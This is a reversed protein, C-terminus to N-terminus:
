FLLMMQFNILFQYRLEALALRRLLPDQEIQIATGIRKRGIVEKDSRTADRRTTAKLYEQPLTQNIGFYHCQKGIHVSMAAERRRTVIQQNMVEKKVLYLRLQLILLCQFCPKLLM